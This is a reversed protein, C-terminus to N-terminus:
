KPTSMAARQGLSRSQRGPSRASGVVRAGVEDVALKVRGELRGLRMSTEQSDRAFAEADQDFRAHTYAVGLHESRVLVLRGASPKQKKAYSCNPLVAQRARESSVRVLPLLRAAVPSRGHHSSRGRIRAEERGVRERESPASLGLV